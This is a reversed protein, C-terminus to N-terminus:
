ANFKEELIPDEIAQIQTTWELVLMLAEVETLTFIEGTLAPIFMANLLDVLDKAQGM